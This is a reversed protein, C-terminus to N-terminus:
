LPCQLTEDGRSTMPGSMSLSSVDIEIAERGDATLEDRQGRASRRRRGVVDGCHYVRRGFGDDVEFTV